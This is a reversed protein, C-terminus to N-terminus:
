MRKSNKSRKKRSSGMPMMLTHPRSIKIWKLVTFDTGMIMKEIAKTM